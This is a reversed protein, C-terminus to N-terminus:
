LSDIEISNLMLYANKVFDKCDKQKCNFNFFIFTRKSITSAHLYQVLSDSKIWHYAKYHMLEFTNGHINVIARKKWIIPPYNFQKNTRELESVNYNLGGTDLWVRGKEQNQHSITLFDISDKCFKQSYYAGSEKILCGKSNALRYKKSSGNWSVDYWELITDYKAPVFLNIKCFPVSDRYGRLIVEKEVFGIPMKREVHDSCAFNISALLLPLFLKM